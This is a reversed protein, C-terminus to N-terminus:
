PPPPGATTMQEAAYAVVIAQELQATATEDSGGDLTHV